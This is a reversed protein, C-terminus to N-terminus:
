KKSAPKRKKVTKAPAPHQGGPKGRRTQAQVAGTVWTFEHGVSDNNRIRVKLLIGPIHVWVKVLVEKKDRPHFRAAAAADTPNIGDNLSAISPYTSTLEIEPGSGAQLLVGPLREPDSPLPAEMALRIFITSAHRSAIVGSESADQDPGTAGEALTDILWAPTTEGPGAPRPVDQTTLSGSEERTKKSAM